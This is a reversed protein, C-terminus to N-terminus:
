KALEVLTGDGTDEGSQMEPRHGDVHDALAIPSAASLVLEFGHPRHTPSPSAARPIDSRRSYCRGRMSLRIGVIVPTPSTFRRPTLGQPM